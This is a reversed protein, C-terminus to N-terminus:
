KASRKWQDLFTKAPTLDLPAQTAKLFAQRAEAVRGQIALLEGWNCWLHAAPYGRKLAMQYSLLQEKLNLDRYEYAARKEWYCSELLPDKKVLAYATELTRIVDELRGNNQFYRQIEAKQFVEHAQLWQEVVGRNEPTVPLLGLMEGGDLIPLGNSVQFWRGEPFRKELFPRYHVNVFLAAWKASIPDLNKNEAANFPQTMVSLTPDDFSFVPSDFDTFILGSGQQRRMDSLIRYARYRELSKGHAFSEPHRDGGLYPELLRPIDLATSFLLVLILVLVRKSASFFSLLSFLGIAAVLILLPLIQSVRFAELNSSLLGPLLFLFFAPVLWQVLPRRRHTLIELFGIFFFASLLPNLFGGTVPTYASNADFSGWFLVSFYHLLVPIRNKWSFNGNWAAEASIHGGWGETWLAILFPLLGILLFFVFFKFSRLDKRSKRLTQVGVTGAMFVAVAPWPTFTFSGLGTVMGLLVAAMGKSSASAKLFRGLFFLCGCVWLPLWIGQHCFRGIFLPWFSFALLSSWVLSFSKSFFQRAAFYGAVVTLTSAAASPFWLSFFPSFGLKFLGAATWVPLPPAQGTTCFFKWTWHRSLELALAGNWGEDGTPWLFLTDLKYFRFFVCLAFGFLISVVPFPALSEKECILKESAPLPKSTKFALLLPLGLGFLGLSIRTGPSLTLYSVASNAALFVLFYALCNNKHQYSFAGSKFIVSM